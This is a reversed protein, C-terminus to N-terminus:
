LTASARCSEGTPSTARVAVTDTGFWDAVSRRYELRGASRVTARAVIRREHLVILRWVGVRARDVRFDARIRGDDARLRLEARGTGTCVGRVRVEDGEDALAPAAAALAVFLVAVFSRM